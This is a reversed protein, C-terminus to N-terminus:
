ACEYTLSSENTKALLVELKCDPHATSRRLPQSWQYEAGKPDPPQDVADEGRARRQL